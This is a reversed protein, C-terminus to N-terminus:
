KKGKKDKERREREATERERAKVDARTEPTGAAVPAAKPLFQREALGWLSSAIFYICLGSAVKYFLVGMFIMMYKMMKQTMAAQEDAAPPMLVKQQVIFLVITLIPLLNFYPGLALMSNGENFWQPWWASWNFLMDPAALNSCWQVSSSFLPADRLEIAVMLARYLGIFVPMQIFIPLCGALPNYSHKRFLEQQAKARAEANGKHKEQLKKLEPQLMQMKQAGAAQKLSLPFMCGRVLITLMIVAIGYNGVVTYFWHLIHALPEAVFGFWGYYILDGLGYPRVIDEKKPGAFFTFKHTLTEGPKLEKLESVLRCSTNTLKPQELDAKGVYIPLLEQFWVEQPNKRQPMLVASFYQADVGIFTMLKDPSVDGGRGLDKGTVITAADEMTPTQAGMSVIFERLGIGSCRTVRTAYWSGELPLGNPGDLRYAVKHSEGAKAINHIEIEFDLHYGRYNEDKQSEKPIPVIRYTKTIEIDKEPLTYRFRAVDKDNGPVVEWNAARLHLGALEDAIMEQHRKERLVIKEADTQNKAEKDEAEWKDKQSKELESLKEGDYQQLTLLMSPPTDSDPKIVELPIRTLTVTTPLDKGDRTVVIKVTRNPKTKALLAEFSLADAVDKGNFSKIVDGRRLDAKAAPTGPGVSGIQCGKGGALSTLALHGLYGNRRDVDRYRPSNLEIREVAAGKNTLTVSMRYPTDPDASGLMVRQEPVKPQPKARIAAVPQEPKEAKAKPQEGAPKPTKKDPAKDGQKAGEKEKTAVEKQAQKPRPPPTPMLLSSLLLIGFSFVLFLVFRREM